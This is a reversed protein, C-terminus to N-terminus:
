ATRQSGLASCEGSLSLSLRLSLSLSLPLIVYLCVLLFVSLCVCIRVCVCMWVRARVHVHELMRAGSNPLPVDTPASNSLMDHGGSSRASPSQAAALGRQRCQDAHQGGVWM